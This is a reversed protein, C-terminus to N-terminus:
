LKGGLDIDKQDVPGYLRKIKIRPKENLLEQYIKEEELASKVKQDFKKTTFYIFAFFGLMPVFVGVGLLIQIQLERKEARLKRERLEREERAKAEYVNEKSEEEDDKAM